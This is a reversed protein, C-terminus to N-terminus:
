KVKEAKIRAWCIPCEKTHSDGPNDYNKLTFYASCRSCSYRYKPDAGLCGINRQVVRGVECSKIHDYRVGPCKLQEPEANCSPCNEYKM